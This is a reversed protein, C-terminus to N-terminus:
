MWDSGGDGVVCGDDDGGGGCCIKLLIWGEVMSKGLDVCRDGRERMVRGGGDVRAMVPVAIDVVKSVVM